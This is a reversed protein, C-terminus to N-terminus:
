TTTNNKIPKKYKKLCSGAYSNRMLSQLESTSKRDEEPERVDCAVAIAEAGVARMAALGSELHDPKRSLIAVTAGLRALEVAMSKGHGTGGGTVAVVQGEYTGDPLAKAGPPPPSPLAMRNGRTAPRASRATRPAPKRIIRPRSCIAKRM